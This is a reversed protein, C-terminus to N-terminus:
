SMYEIDEESPESSATSPTKQRTMALLSLDIVEQLHQEMAIKAAAADGKCIAEFVKRHSALSEARRADRKAKESTSPQIRAMDPHTTSVVRKILHLRLIEKKMLDNGAANLIALHFRIDENIVEKLLALSETSQNALNNVAKEMKHFPAAIAKLENETRYLAALGAASSELAQRVESMERYEKMDMTKVMAGVHTRITILGEAELQRLAERVPTRSVGTKSALDAEQLLQGPQYDGNLIARRIFDYAVHSNTAMKILNNLTNDVVHM